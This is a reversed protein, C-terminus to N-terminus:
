EEKDSGNNNGNRKGTVVKGVFHAGLGAVTVVGLATGLTDATANIGPLSVDSVKNYLPSVKDPFGPEVCGLCPAQSGICWNTGSNWRRTPCDASTVPGKCGLEYLCYPESLHKAFRGADFHGRNPCNDHINSGYFALPRGKDDVKVGGLGGILVTAVTGVFWDPHTPCGPLNIVPTKIGNKAFVETVSANGTPNPSAAPIGGYAACTGLALVAMADRGLRITHELATIGQGNHEGIRCYAGNEKLPIAGEVVLVYGGKKQATDNMAKMALDGAAAMVTAHYRLSIHKGPVVQDVLVNQIKPSLSNLVSVSCGTCTASQLWIVPIEEVAAELLRTFGPVDFLALGLAAASGASLKLFDRRTVTSRETM